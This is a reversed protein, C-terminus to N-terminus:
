YKLPEGDQPQLIGGPPPHVGASHTSRFLSRSLRTCSTTLGILYGSIISVELSRRAIGGAGKPSVSGSWQKLAPQAGYPTEAGKSIPDGEAATILTPCAIKHVVSSIEFRAIEKSLDFLNAKGHVWFLRDLIRCRLMSTKPQTCLMQEIPAFLASDAVELDKLAEPPIPLAKV